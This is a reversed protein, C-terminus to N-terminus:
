SRGDNQTAHHRVPGPRIKPTEDKGNNNPNISYTNLPQLGYNVAPFKVQHRYGSRPAAKEKKPNNEPQILPM